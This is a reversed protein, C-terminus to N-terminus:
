GGVLAGGDFGVRFRLFLSLFVRFRFYPVLLRRRLAFFVKVGLLSFGAFASSLFGGDGPFLAPPSPAKSAEVERFRFEGLHRRHILDPGSSRCPSLSLLRPLLLPTKEVPFRLAGAVARESVRRGQSFKEVLTDLDVDLEDVYNVMEKTFAENAEGHCQLM